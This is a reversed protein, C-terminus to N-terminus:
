KALVVYRSSFWCGDMDVIDRAKHGILGENSLLHLCKVVMGKKALLKLVLEDATVYSREGPIKRALVEERVAALLGELSWRKHAFYTKQRKDKSKKAGVNWPRAGCRHNGVRTKM